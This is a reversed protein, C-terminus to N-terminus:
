RKPPIKHNGWWVKKPHAYNKKNYRSKELNFFYKSNKEMNDVFNCKSHFIASKTAKEVYSEMQQKAVEYEAKISNNCNPKQCQAKLKEVRNILKNYEKRREYAIEKAKYQVTVTLKENCLEWRIDPTANAYKKHANDLIDNCSQVLDINYLLSTTLNGTVQVVDKM